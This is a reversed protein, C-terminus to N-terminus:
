RAGRLRLARDVESTFLRSRHVVDQARDTVEQVKPSQEVANELQAEAQRLTHEAGQESGRNRKGWPPWWRM